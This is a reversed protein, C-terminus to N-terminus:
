RKYEFHYIISSVVILFYANLESLEEFILNYKLAFVKKDFIWSLVLFCFVMYICVAFNTKLLDVLKSISMQKLFLVISFIGLVALLVNRGIGSGLFIIWHAFDFEEIDLERLVFGLCITLGCAAISMTHCFWLGHIFTFLGLILFSVEVNEIASNEAFLELHVRGALFLCINVFLLSLLMFAFLAKMSVQHPSRNNKIASNM